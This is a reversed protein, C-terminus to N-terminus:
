ARSVSEHALPRVPDTLHGIGVDLAAASKDTEPDSVLLAELGSNLRIFRYQRTDLLSKSLEKSYVDFTTNSGPHTTRTWDSPAQTTAMFRSSLPLLQLPRRILSLMFAFSGSRNPLSQLPVQLNSHVM